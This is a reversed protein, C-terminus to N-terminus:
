RTTKAGPQGWATLLSPVSERIEIKESACWAELSPLVRPEVVLRYVCVAGFVPPFLRVAWVGLLFLGGQYSYGTTHLLTVFSGLLAVAGVPGLIREYLEAARVIEVRSPSVRRIELADLLWAGPILSTLLGALLLLIPFAVL